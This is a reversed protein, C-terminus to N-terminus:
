HNRMSQAYLMLAGQTVLDEGVSLGETIEVMGGELEGVTVEVPEYFNEHLVFVIPPNGEVDIVGAIPVIIGTDTAADSEIPTVVIGLESDTEPNGQVRQIEGVPKFGGGHGPHALAVTPASLTLIGALIFSILPFFKM